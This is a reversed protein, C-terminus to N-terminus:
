SSPTSCFSFVARPCFHCSTLSKVYEPTGRTAYGEEALYQAMEYQHNDLLSTNPVVVIPVMAKWADLITGTGSFLTLSLYSPFRNWCFPRFTGAHSIVLGLTAKGPVAKCLTMEEKMLNKSSEFVEVNMGSPINQSESQLQSSAWDTDPGCQVRLSTFGKSQLHKWFEPHLVTKTLEPFGVTAGVTVLCHRQLQNSESM